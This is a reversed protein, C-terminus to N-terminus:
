AVGLDDDDNVDDDAIRLLRFKAREVDWLFDGGDAASVAIYEQGDELLGIIIVRKFKEQSAFKLITEPNHNLKTIGPFFVINDAMM